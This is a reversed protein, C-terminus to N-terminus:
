CSGLCNFTCVRSLIKKEHLLYAKRRCRTYRTVNTFGNRDEKRLLHLIAWYTCLIWLKNPVKDWGEKGRNRLTYCETYRIAYTTPYFITNVRRQEWLSQHIMCLSIRSISPCPFGFDIRSKIILLSLPYIAQFHCWILTDAECIM